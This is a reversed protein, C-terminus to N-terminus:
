KALAKAWEAARQAEGDKLPGESEKVFFGEPAAAQEGGKKVLAALMPDAAYGFRKVMARLVRSKIDDPQIRTDLAAVRVGALMGVPLARLWETIAPTPKFGRTPSAAILLGAGALEEARADCVRIAKAGLAEAATQAILATNGFVSDYVIYANM